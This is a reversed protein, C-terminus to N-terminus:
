RIFLRHPLLSNSNNPSPVAVRPVVVALELWVPPVATPPVTRGNDLECCITDNSTPMSRTAEAVAPPAGLESVTKTVATSRAVPMTVPVAEAEVREPLQAIPDAAAKREIEPSIGLVPALEVDEYMAKDPRAAQSGTVVGDLVSENQPTLREASGVLNAPQLNM